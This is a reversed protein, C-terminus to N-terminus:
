HPAGSHKKGHEPPHDKGHEPAAHEKGHESPAHEKGHEPPAHEKGHEPPAHDKDHQPTHEKRHGGDNNQPPGFFEPHTVNFKWYLDFAWYTLALPTLGQWISKTQYAKYAAAVLFSAPILVKLDRVSGAHIHDTDSPHRVLNVLSKGVGVVLGLGAAVLAGPGLIEAAEDEILTSFLDTGVSELSKNLIEFIPADKDHQVLVSGTNHNVEVCNVGPAEALEQKIRKLSHRHSKPIKLRTRGPSHHAVSKSTKTLKKPM